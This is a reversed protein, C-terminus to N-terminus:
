IETDKKFRVLSFVDYKPLNKRGGLYELEAIAAMGVVNGGLEEVMEAAVKLTASTAILDDVILVRQDKKVAGLQIEFSTDHNASPFDVKLVEFPLKGYRRIPAFGIGMEHALVGGIIFGSSELSVIIDPKKSRAFVLLKEVAEKFAPPNSYLPTMDRYFMGKSPFDKIHRISDKLDM